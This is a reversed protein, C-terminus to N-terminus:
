NKPYIASYWSTCQEQYFGIKELEHEMKNYCGYKKYDLSFYPALDGGDHCVILFSEQGYREGRQKWESPSYFARCGGSDPHKVDKKVCNIIAEAIAKEVANQLVQDSFNADLENKEM